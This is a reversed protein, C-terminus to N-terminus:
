CFRHATCRTMGEKNGPRLEGRRRARKQGCGAGRRQTRTLARETGTEVGWVLMQATGTKVEMGTKVGGAM